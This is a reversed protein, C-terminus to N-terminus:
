LLWRRHGSGKNKNSFHSCWITAAWWPRCGGRSRAAVAAIFAFIHETTLEDVSAIGSAQVV